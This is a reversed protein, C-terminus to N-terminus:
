PTSRAPPTEAAPATPAPAQPATQAAPPTGDTAPAEGRRDVAYFYLLAGLFVLLAVSAGYRFLRANDRDDSRAQRRTRSPHNM